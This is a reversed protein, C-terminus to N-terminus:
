VLFYFLIGLKKTLFHHFKVRFFDNTGLVPICGGKSKMSNCHTGM